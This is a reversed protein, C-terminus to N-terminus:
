CTRAMETLANWETATATLHWKAKIHDWVRAYTCWASRLPPRWQDPGGDGKAENESGVIPVLHLADAVDNAYDVRRAPSWSWAGSRWANALPVTHDIQFDHAVTSTVGSWPDTWKGTAVSCGSRTFTVPVASTRILM